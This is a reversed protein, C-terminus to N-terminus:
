REHKGRNHRYFLPWLESGLVLIAGLVLFFGVGSFSHCRSKHVHEDPPILEYTWRVLCGGNGSRGRDVLNTANIDCEKDSDNANDGDNAIDSTAYM